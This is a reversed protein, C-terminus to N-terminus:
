FFLFIFLLIDGVVFFVFLSLESFKGVKIKGSSIKDYPWFPQIGDVTFSDLFVHISYGLFFPLAIVPIFFAFIASVIVAFTLSHIFGRHKTFFQIPRAVKKSGIWSFYTDIDPLLTAILFIVIFSLKYNYNIYKVFLLMIFIAIALHTRRLM